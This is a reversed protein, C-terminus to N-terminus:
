SAGLRYLAAGYSMGAGVGVLLIRHGARVDRTRLLRDLGVPMSAVGLSGLEEVNPVVRSPDVDLTALIKQLMPGNPQHPVVWDVDDLGVGTADLVSRASRQIAAVAVETIGKNALGFRVHETQETIGPHNMYVSGRHSGDNGFFTAEVGEDGSRAPEIIAAAAADGFIVYSRPVSPSLHPSPREVAVIGIPHVGTAVLRAALDLMNLFGVCANNLDFCGCTDRLDLEELLANSTAPLLFDAGTSNALMVRKLSRKDVGADALARTLVAAGLQAVTTGPEVWWRTAIGTLARVAAPDRSPMAEAALEETPVLRGVLHSATASIRCNLLMHRAYM